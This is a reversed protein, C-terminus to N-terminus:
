LQGSYANRWKTEIRNSFLGAENHTNFNSYYMTIARQSPHWSLIVLKIYMYNYVTLLIMYINIFLLFM